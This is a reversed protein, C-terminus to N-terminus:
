LINAIGIVGGGIPKGANGDILSSPTNGYDDASATLRVKGLDDPSEHILISRGIVSYPGIVQVHTDELHLTATKGDSTINGLSGM